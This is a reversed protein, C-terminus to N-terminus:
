SFVNAFCMVPVDSTDMICSSSERSLSSILRNFLRGSTQASGDACLGRPLHGALEGMEM